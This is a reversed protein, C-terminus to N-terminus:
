SLHENIDFIFTLFRCSIAPLAGTVAAMIAIIVAPSATIDLLACLSVRRSISPTISILINQSVTSYNTGM